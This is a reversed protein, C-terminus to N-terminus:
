AKKVKSAMDVVRSNPYEALIQGVSRHTVLIVAADDAFFRYVQDLRKENIGSDAEDSLILLTNIDKVLSLNELQVEGGSGRNGFYSYSEQDQLFLTVYNRLEMASVPRGDVVISGSDAKILGALIKLLTSKSTMNDGILVIKEGAKIELSFNDLVTHWDDYSYCIDKLEILEIKEFSTKGNMVAEEIDIYSYTGDIIHQELMYLSKENQSKKQIILIM